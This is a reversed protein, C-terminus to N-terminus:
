GAGWAGRLRLVALEVLKAEIDHGQSKLDVCIYELAAALAQPSQGEDPPVQHRDLPIINSTMAPARDM